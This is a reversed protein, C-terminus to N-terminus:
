SEYEFTQFIVNRRPIANRYHPRAQRNQLMGASRMCLTTEEVFVTHFSMAAFSSTRPVTEAAALQDDDLDTPNVGHLQCRQWCYTLFQNQEPTHADAWTLLYQIFGPNWEYHGAYCLGPKRFSIPKTQSGLDLLEIPEVVVIPEWVHEKDDWQYNALRIAALLQRRQLETGWLTGSSGSAQPLNEALATVSNGGTGCPPEGSCGLPEGSCGPSQGLNRPPRSPLAKVTLKARPLPLSAAAVVLDASSQSSAPARQPPAKVPLKPRQLPVPPPLGRLPLHLVPRQRAKASDLPLPAGTDEAPYPPSARLALTQAESDSGTYVTEAETDTKVTEAESDPDM